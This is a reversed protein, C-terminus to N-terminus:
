DSAERPYNIPVEGSLLGFLAGASSVVLRTILTFTVCSKIIFFCSKM